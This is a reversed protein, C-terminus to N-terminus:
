KEGYAYAHRRRWHPEPRATADTVRDQRSAMTMVAVAIAGAYAGVVFAVLLWWISFM